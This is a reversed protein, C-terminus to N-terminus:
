NLLNKVIGYLTPLKPPLASPCIKEEKGAKSGDPSWKGKVKLPPFFPM